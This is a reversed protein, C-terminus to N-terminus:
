FCDPLKKILHNVIEQATVEDLDDFRNRSPSDIDLVGIVINNKILPIVLESKSASDCAIHGKFTTVDAINQISQTTVAKGCVGKSLPIRSCAVKGQFPGVVLENGKILYFGVWNIDEIFEYLMAAVNALNAIVDDETSLIAKVQEILLSYAENKNKPINVEVHMM